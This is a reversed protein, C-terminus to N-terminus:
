HKDSSAGAKSYFYQARDLLGLKEYAAGIQQLVQPNFNAEESIAGLTESAKSKDKEDLYIEALKLYLVSERPMLTIGKQYLGVAQRTRGTKRYLSALTDLCGPDLPALKVATQFATEAKAYNKQEFRSIGMDLYAQTNNPNEKAAEQAESLAEVTKKGTELCYWVQHYLSEPPYEHSTANIEIAVKLEKAAEEADGKAIFLGALQEHPGAMPPLIGSARQYQQIAEDLKGQKYLEDGYIMLIDRSGIPYSKIEAAWLTEQNQWIGMQKVTGYGLLLCLGLAFLRFFGPHESTFFAIGAPVALFLGLSPLYTYRDGGAFSGVQVFGAVPLLTALYYFWATVLFPFQGRRLLAWVSVGIVALAALVSTFYYTGDLIHPLPYFPVLGVPFVMKWLYFVASRFSHLINFLFSLNLNIGQNMELRTILSVAAALIFFPMKEILLKGLGNRVRGLPWFDFLLFVLPLTIAMPKSMLALLYLVLLVIKPHPGLVKSQVVGPTAATSDKLDFLYRLYLLLAPLYFFAYLVDKREAAWCVSEVHIPHLGFLLTALLAGSLPFNKGGKGFDKQFLIFLRNSLLFVWLCNFGHLLVNTLHYVRPDAGGVLYNVAFSFFTLPIWLGISPQPTLMWLLAPFGLSRINPNATIMERDDWDIFGNNLSPLYFLVVVLATLTAWFWLPVGTKGPPAPNTKM